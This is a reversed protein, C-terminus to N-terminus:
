ITLARLHKEIGDRDLAELTVADTVNMSGISTRRLQQLYAGTKLEQGVDRAIARIYTGRGCNIRLRLIPWTYELIEISNIRVLRPPLKVVQGQRARDCARRGAIKLASYAPPVQPIVGVFKRLVEDVAELTAPIAEPTIIEPSEPDDTLTTAGFKLGCEYVKPLGMVTECSKTAKGALLVLLGTAFPDLTGAHGIRVGRPLLRKVRRVVSASSPGTPKDIYILGDAV